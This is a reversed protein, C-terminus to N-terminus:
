HNIQIFSMPFQEFCALQLLFIFLIIEKSLFIGDESVVKFLRSDVSILKRIEDHNFDKWAVFIRIYLENKSLYHKGGEHVFRKIIAPAHSAYRQKPAGNAHTEANSQPHM